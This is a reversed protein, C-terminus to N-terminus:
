LLSDIRRSRLRGRQIASVRHRLLGAGVRALALVGLLRVLRDAGGAVGEAGGALELAGQAAVVPLEVVEDPLASDCRLHGIGLTDRCGDGDRCLKGAAARGLERRRSRDYGEAAEQLGVLLAAVLLAVIAGLRLL